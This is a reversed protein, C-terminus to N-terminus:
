GTDILERRAGSLDNLDFRILALQKKDWAANYMQTSGISAKWQGTLRAAEHIHGHLTLYPQYKAIFRRIAISGVHVDLPVYDVMQGDLAARDLPTDYPPSHFLFVAYELNQEGALQDLDGAIHDYAPDYDPKATRMGESPHTCGPDVFRSVDYKEWDKLGFPTPPIFAYGYIDYGELSVRRNHIYEWIGHEEGIRIMREENVRPDDNGLIIFVRPYDAKLCEKVKMFGDVLVRQVFDGDGQGEHYYGHPLLDGGMFLCAPPEKLLQDFLCRYIDEDGHLDSVFCCQPMSIQFNPYAMNM